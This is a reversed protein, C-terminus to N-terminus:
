VDKSRDGEDQAADDWDRGLDNQRNREQDRREGGASQCIASSAHGEGPGAFTVLTFAMLMLTLSFTYRTNSKRAFITTANAWDERFRKTRGIQSLYRTA